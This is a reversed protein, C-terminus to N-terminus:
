LFRDLARAAGAAHLGYAIGFLFSAAGVVPVLAELGRAPGRAVARGLVASAIGMSLATGAAFVTLALVRAAANPSAAIVILGAGASGGVGHLLGLAFSGGLSHREGFHAHAHEPPHGAGSPEREHVHPHAHRVDGHEHVHAHFYGRRWRVLLRAALLAIVAGVLIEAVGHARGPLLPTALVIPLGFLLLTAAHGAGWAFGLAGARSRARDKGSLILTAVATLHDPDTAHRLGLLLAVLAAAAVGDGPLSRLIEDM